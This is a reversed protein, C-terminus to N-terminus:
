HVTAASEGNQAPLVPAGPSRMQEYEPAPGVNLTERLKELSQPLLEEWNQDVLWQSRRGRLYGQRILKGTDSRWGNGRLSRLVMYGIGTNKTQAFTFALVAMEGRMDRGYGTIVHFVDHLERVRRGLFAQDTAAQNPQPEDSAAESAGKLGQASLQETTYFEWISKGLSGEPMSGLRIDYLEPKDKLLQNGNASLKFKKFLREASDGSMANIARIAQETDDPNSSLKALANQAERLRLSM